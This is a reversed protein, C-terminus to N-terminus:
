RDGIWCSTTRHVPRRPRPRAARRAARGGPRAGGRLLPRAARVEPDDGGDPGLAALWGAVRAPGYPNPRDGTFGASLDHLRALQEGIRRCREPTVPTAARRRGRRTPSSCRRAAPSRRSRGGAPPRSSPRWRIARRGGPVPAGGGRVRRGRRVQGREGAPLLAPRRGVRPLEHQRRRTPEPRVHDPAPLGLARLTAALERGTLVTYLALGRARRAGPRGGVRRASMREEPPADRLRNFGRGGGVAGARPSLCYVGRGHAPVLLVVDREGVRVVRAADLEGVAAPEVLGDLLELLRDLEIRAGGVRM